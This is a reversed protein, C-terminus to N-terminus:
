LVKLVDLIELFTNYTCKSRKMSVPVKAQIYSWKKASISKQIKRIFYRAGINYSASLDCNYKKGNSFTALKHNFKDRILKGSGDFAIKSTNVANIHSIRIGKRHAKNEVLQQISNKKWMHLKQKKSGYSKGKFNLHEFVIVDVNQIEAYETIANAIKRALETNKFKAKRWLKTTNHSGYHQCIGKIKSLTHTLYDKDSQFNIFKRSLITGDSKIVSCVADTNVGLDVSLITDQTEKLNTEEEFAFKLFYKHYRKELTPVTMKANQLHKRIYQMDTHKLKATVWKWDNQIYLKLRVTDDGNPIYMNDKYFTPFERLHKQLTPEKGVRGSDIWNQLNSYYSSLHGLATNIVSRRMYSPMKYFKSDFDYKAKNNKTNHILKEAFNNRSKYTLKSIDSWEKYFVNICFTVANNYILITPRFIKNMHKIEIGYSSIIKM